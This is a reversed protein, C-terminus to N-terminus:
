KKDEGDTNETVPASEANRYRNIKEFTETNLIKTKMALGGEAIREANLTSNDYITWYDVIPMYLNFLNQIGRTYRRFIQEKSVNHGGEKVRMKVRLEAMEPSEIWFYLLSVQYGLARAEAAHKSYVRAALTTEIGFTEKREMLDKMRQLALRSAALAQSEPNYPSLGHAIEDANIFEKCDFTQPLLVRTATTKGAGNCGGIIYFNPKKIAM